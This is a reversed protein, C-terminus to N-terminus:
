QKVTETQDECECRHCTGCLIQGCDNCTSYLHQAPDIEKGCEVCKLVVEERQANTM